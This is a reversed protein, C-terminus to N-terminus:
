GLCSSSGDNASSFYPRVIEGEILMGLLLCMIGEPVAHRCTHPYGNTKQSVSIKADSYEVINQQM